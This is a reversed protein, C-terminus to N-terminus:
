LSWTTVLSSRTSAIQCPRAILSQAIEPAILATRVASPSVSRSLRIMLVIWPRPNRRTASTTELVGSVTDPGLGAEWAARFSLYDARRCEACPRHGAALAVAEDLFFLATYHGPKLLKRHRGKFALRCCVWNRHRWRAPGLQGTADHLIGRNGMFLGRAPHPVSKVQQSSETRDPWATEREHRTHAAPRSAQPLPQPRGYRRALQYLGVFVLHKAGVFHDRAHEPGPVVQLIGLVRHRLRPRRDDAHRKRRPLRAKM